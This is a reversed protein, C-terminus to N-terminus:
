RRLAARFEQLRFAGLMQGFGFYSAIGIGVLVALAFYRLTEAALLPAMVWAALWLVGGMLGAAAIIRLIRDRFRADYRAADGMGRSGWWLQGVMAWSSLTTGLAAAIFGIYPALGMALGANVVLSLIAYYFPRRTDERAYFLPQLVKQLIFAPLGLGYVAVALATAATDDGTFAGREYLVSILPVPIVVLAVAAPITLALSLETARNYADRGGSEDGGRM